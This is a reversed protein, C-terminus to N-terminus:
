AKLKHYGKKNTNVACLTTPSTTDAACGLLHNGMISSGDDKEM